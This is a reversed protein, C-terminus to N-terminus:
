TCFDIHLRNGDPDYVNVEVVHELKGELTPVAVHSLQYGLSRRELRSVFHKFDTGRFAVHELRLAKGPTPESEVEVIHLVAKDGLYLWAGRFRFDPRPGPALELVDVYFDTLRQVNTTRLNVHDLTLLAM